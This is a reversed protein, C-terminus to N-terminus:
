RKTKDTLLTLLRWIEKMEKEISTLDPCAIRGQHCLIAIQNLNAGIRRLQPLINKLDEIVVIKKDLAATSLYGSLSMNATVAKECIM